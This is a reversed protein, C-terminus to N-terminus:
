VKLLVRGEQEHTKNIEDIAFRGFEKNGIQIVVEKIVPGNSGGGSNQPMRDAVKSALDTIWGTNNELPMVAEKGAEGVIALTASDIIGGKALRPLNVYGISGLSVGPIKNILGIVGNIMGIFGNVVNEITGLVANVAYRFAGGVASGIM